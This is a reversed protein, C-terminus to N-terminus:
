DILLGFGSDTQEFIGDPIGSSGSSSGEMGMRTSNEALPSPLSSQLSGLPMGFPSHDHNQGVLFEDLREEANKYFDHPMNSLNRTHSEPAVPRDVHGVDGAHQFDFLSAFIDDQPACQQVEGYSTNLVFPIATSDHSAFRKPRPFLPHTTDNGEMINRFEEDEDQRAHKKSNHKPTQPAERLLERIEVDEHNTSPNNYLECSLAKIHIHNFQQKFEANFDKPDHRGCFITETILRVVRAMAMAAVAQGDSTSGPTTVQTKFYHFDQLLHKIHFTNQKGIAVLCKVTPRGARTSQHINIPCSRAKPVALAATIGLQAAYYEHLRQHNEMTHLRSCCPLTYTSRRATRSVFNKSQLIKPVEQYTCLRLSKRSTSMVPRTLAGVAPERPGTAHLRCSHLPFNCADFLVCVDWGM